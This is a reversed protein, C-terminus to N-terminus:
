AAVGSVIVAILVVIFVGLFALGVVIWPGSSTGPAPESTPTARGEDTLTPDDAQSARETGRLDEDPLEHTMIPTDPAPREARSACPWRGMAPSKCSRSAGHLRAQLGDLRVMRDHDPRIAPPPLRRPRRDLGVGATPSATTPATEDLAVTWRDAPDAEDRPGTEARVDDGPHGDALRAPDLEAVVGV